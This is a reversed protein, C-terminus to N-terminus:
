NLEYFREIDDRLNIKSGDDKKESNEKKTLGIIFDVILEIGMKENSDDDTIGSKIIIDSESKGIIDDRTMLHLQIVESLKANKEDVPIGESCLGERKILRILRTDKDCSVFIKISSRARLNKDYLAFIGNIIIIDGNGRCLDIDELLHDFKYNSVKLPPENDICYEESNDLDVETIKVQNDLLKSLKDKISRSLTKKGSGNGGGILIIIKDGEEM